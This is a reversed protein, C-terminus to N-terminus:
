RRQDLAEIIREAAKSVDLQRRELHRCIAQIGACPGGGVTEDGPEVPEVKGPLPSRIREDGEVLLQEPTMGLCRQDSAELPLVGPRELESRYCSHRLLVRYLRRDILPDM